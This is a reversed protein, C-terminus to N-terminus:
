TSFVWNRGSLPLGELALEVWEYSSNQSKQSYAQSPM